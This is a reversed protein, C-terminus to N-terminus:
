TLLILPKKEVENIKANPTTNIYRKLLMTKVVESVKSLDVSVPVLKNVDLKDVYSKLNGLNTAYM